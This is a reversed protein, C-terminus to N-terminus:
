RYKRKNSNWTGQKPEEIEREEERRQRSERRAAGENQMGKRKLGDATARGPEIESPTERPRRPFTVGIERRKGAGLKSKQRRGSRSAARANEM